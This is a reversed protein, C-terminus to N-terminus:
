IRHFYDPTRKTQVIDVRVMVELLSLDCRDRRDVGHMVTDSSVLSVICYPVSCCVIKNKMGIQCAGKRKGCRFDIRSALLPSAWM